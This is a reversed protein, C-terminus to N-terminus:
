KALSVLIGGLSVIVSSGAFFVVSETALATAEARMRAKNKSKLAELMVPGTFFGIRPLFKIPKRWGVLRSSGEEVRLITVRVLLQFGGWFLFVGLGVFIWGAVFM